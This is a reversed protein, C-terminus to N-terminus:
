TNKYQPVRTFHKRPCKIQRPYRCHRLTPRCTLSRVSQSEERARWGLTPRVSLRETSGWDKGLVFGLDEAVADARSDGGGGGGWPCGVSGETVGGWPCLREGGRRCRPVDSNGVSGEQM